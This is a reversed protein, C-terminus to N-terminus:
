GSPAAVKGEVGQVELALCMRRESCTRSDSFAICYAPVRCRMHRHSLALPLALYRPAIKPLLGYPCACQPLKLFPDHCAIM